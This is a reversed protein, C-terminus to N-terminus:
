DELDDRFEDRDTYCMDRSFVDCNLIEGVYANVRSCLQCTFHWSDCADQGAFVVLPLDPNELILKRLTSTYDLNNIYGNMREREGM